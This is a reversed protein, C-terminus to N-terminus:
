ILLGLRENATQRHHHHSLPNHLNKRVNEIIKTETKTYVRNVIERRFGAQALYFRKVMRTSEFFIRNFCHIM